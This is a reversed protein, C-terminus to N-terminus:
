VDVGAIWVKERCSARGIQRVLREIRYTPTPHRRDRSASNVLNGIFSATMSICPSVFTKKVSSTSVCARSPISRWIWRPSNTEIEPGDPHPLDVRNDITPNSSLGVAPEYSNFPLGTCSREM